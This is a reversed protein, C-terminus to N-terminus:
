ITSYKTIFPLAFGRKPQIGETAVLTTAFLNSVKAISLASLFVILSELKLHNVATVVDGLGDQVSCLHTSESIIAPKLGVIKASGSLVLVLDHGVITFVSFFPTHYLQSLEQSYAKFLVFALTIM